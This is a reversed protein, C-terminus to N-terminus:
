NLVGIQGQENRCYLICFLYETFIQTTVIYRCMKGGEEKPARPNGVEWGPTHM